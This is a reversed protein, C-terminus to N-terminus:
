RGTKVVAILEEEVIGIHRARMGVVLPDDLRDEVASILQDGPRRGARMRGVGAPQQASSSVLDEMLPDADHTELNDLAALEPFIDKLAKGFLAAVRLVDPEIKFRHDRAVVNACFAIQTQHLLKARLKDM